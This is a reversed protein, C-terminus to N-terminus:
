EGRDILEDPNGVFSKMRRVTNRLHPSAYRDSAMAELMPLLRATQKRRQMDVEPPPIPQTAPTRIPEAPRETPRAFPSAGPRPPPSPAEVSPLGVVELSEEQAKAQGYTQGKATEIKQGKGNRPM